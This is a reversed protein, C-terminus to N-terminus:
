KANAVTKDLIKEFMEHTTKLDAKWDPSGVYWFETVFKRVGM